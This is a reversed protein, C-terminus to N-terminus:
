DDQRRHRDQQPRDGKQLCEPSQWFLGSMTRARDDALCSLLEIFIM